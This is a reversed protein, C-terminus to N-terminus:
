TSLAAAASTAAYKKYSEAFRANGVRPAGYTYISIRMRQNLEHRRAALEYACLTALGGGLSHGTILVRWKGNDKYDKTLEDLVAFLKKQVSRFAALFGRHCMTVSKSGFVRRWGNVVLYTSEAAKDYHAQFFKLDTAANELSATGRFSVIIERTLASRYLWAQAWGCCAQVPWSSAPPWFYLM